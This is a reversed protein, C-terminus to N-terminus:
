TKLISVILIIYIGCNACLMGIALEVARKLLKEFSATNRLLVTNM